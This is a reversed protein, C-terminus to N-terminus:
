REGVYAVAAFHMVLDIHNKSFVQQLAAKDGLDLDLFLLRGQQAGSLSSAVAVIAGRNGRSLNDVALVSHGEELLTLCAHSGIFGAAGTVLVAKKGAEPAALKSSAGIVSSMGGSNSVFEHGYIILSCIAAVALIRVVKSDAM